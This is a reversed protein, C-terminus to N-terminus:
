PERRELFEEVTLYQAWEGAEQREVETDLLFRATSADVQFSAALFNGLVFARDRRTTGKPLSRVLRGAADLCQSLNRNWDLKHFPVKTLDTTAM